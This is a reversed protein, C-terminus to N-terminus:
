NQNPVKTSDMTAGCVKCAYTMIIKGDKYDIGSTSWVHDAMDSIETCKEHTCAHWHHSTDNSWEESYTHEHKSCSCLSACLLAASIISIFKKM